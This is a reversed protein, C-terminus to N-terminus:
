IYVADVPLSTTRYLASPLLSGTFNKTHGLHQTTYSGEMAECNRVRQIRSIPCSKSFDESKANHVSESESLLIRREHELLLNLHLSQSFTDDAQDQDGEHCSRPTSSKSSIGLQHDKVERLELQYKAKLWRLEWQVESECDNTLPNHLSDPVFTFSHSSALHKTLNRRNEGKPLSPQALKEHEEDSHIGGSGLSSCEPTECRGCTESHNAGNDQCSTALKSAEVEHHEPVSESGEVQFTIEEFRGHIAAACGNPCQFFTPNFAGPNTSLFDMLSGISTHTSACNQCLKMDSFCTSEEFGPGKRWNPVLAAIEGDIMDAISTVDQDTIELEAVMETAVSLATDLEIDFPFYINRIRGEKDAIRLRLFISGDERKKGKITIDVDPSHDDDQQEFLEIGSSEIESPNYGCEYSELDIGNSYGNYYSSDSLSNYHELFPQRILSGLGDFESICDTLRSDDEYDDIQLFPDNLLERASLRSSVTALCKEIFQRVEPDKVKYLANPKKGSIVKKYIQAPNSCESYPYEFTVMELICMGFSYIDVLENYEEEYVEPAMFEPTGVCHAAHSKRLIAALGLDGIKVEGQNGNVFINDCKLDRHIVPPDHSHLYFLGKLIQRCWHKVARINVRRHKLRYQRLTGSTFMETVFNINRKATDVWSTYFKMINKHKLTKLLHIECYLRELDEPSQLFDYLKVQNWAVEIGEYEDFARYVIKSAGKGLIEHYRGYRGTPDVEVFESCEDELNSFGNM